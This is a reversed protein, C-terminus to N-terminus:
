TYIKMVKDKPFIIRVKTGKNLKSELKLGLGLKDCLRKCLYLGIGTSKGFRRGNEGTFGKEFIRDLDREIIGVGNDEIILVVSNGQSNASIKIVGEKEKTYKVSNVLIQNVIFEVWKSDSYITEKIEEIELKIKKSIFDRYNKKVVKKVISDLELEKIIYDKSVEDSRTYYLVQEIFNDIRDIQYDIKRTVDNYNNEIVLRSSAIPTKIEHIWMEIYERYEEQETRYHKVNEHMSKSLERLVDNIEEGLLFNPEDIVEPLLYKKDLEELVRRIDNIYRSWKIYNLVMYALLPLFWIFWTLLIIVLPIRLYMFVGFIIMFFLVNISLNLGNEKFFGKIM